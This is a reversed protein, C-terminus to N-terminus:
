KKSNLITNAIITSSDLHILERASTDSLKYNQLDSLMKKFLELFATDLKDQNLIEGLGLQSILKANEYQENHSVWPIPIMLAPKELYLIESITHAGSRSILMDSKSFIEGIEDSLVFKRQYYKGPSNSKIQEYAKALDNYDDYMSTDGCQHILNASNLLDPLFKLITANIVHSGTKGATIYVTPLSNNLEFNNTNVQSIEPRIPLGSLIVKEEPFYKRSKEWSIFIKDVFRSILKNAYGSVVTQEHTFTKIGFFNGVIVVPVALYGGFSLIVDPKIKLLYYAAQLFGFPIKALRSIDYTKYFKGAKLEFFPIELNKIDIYELTENKNGKLTHKHGIWFIEINPDKEKLKKIVPLASTHHGGTIVLKM